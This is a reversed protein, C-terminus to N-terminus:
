RRLKRTKRNKRTVPLFPKQKPKQTKNKNEKKKRKFNEKTGQSLPNNTKIRTYDHGTGMHYSEKIRSFPRPPIVEEQETESENTNKDLVKFLSNYEGLLDRDKPSLFAAYKSEFDLISKHLYEKDINSLKTQKLAGELDELLIELDEDKHKDNSLMRMYRKGLNSTLEMHEITKTNKISDLSEQIDELRERSNKILNIPTTM